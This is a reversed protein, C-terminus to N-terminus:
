NGSTNPLIPTYNPNIFQRQGASSMRCASKKARWTKYDPDNPWFPRQCVTCIGFITGTDLRHWAIATRGFQDAADSLPHSGMIHSCEEYQYQHTNRRLQEAQAKMSARMAADNAVQKPDVYPKKAEVMAEAIIRAFETMNPSGAGSAGAQALLERFQEKSITVTEGTTPPATFVEEAAEEVVPAESGGGLLAAANEKSM